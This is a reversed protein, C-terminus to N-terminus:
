WNKFVGHSAYPRITVMTVWWYKMSHLPFLLSFSPIGHLKVNFKVNLIISLQLKSKMIVDSEITLQQLLCAYFESKWNFNFTSRIAVLELQSRTNANVKSLMRDFKRLSNKNIILFFTVVCSLDFNCSGLKTSIQLNWDM